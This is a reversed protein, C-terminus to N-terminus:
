KFGKLILIDEELEKRKGGNYAAVAPHYLPIIKIKKSFFDTEFVKGKIKSIPEILDKLGFREMIYAMSFRGLTCIVDPQIAEIQRELYETCIDIEGKLPDRNKPPRCKLINCIYVDERKIDIKELISDLIKGSTGCFPVGTKDENAGPAEGIFVIKSKYSGSGVVPQIREKWLSCKKCNNIDEEIKDIDKAMINNLKLM